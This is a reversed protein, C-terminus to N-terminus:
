TAGETYRRAMDQILEMAWQGYEDNTVHSAVLQCLYLHRLRLTDLNLRLLDASLVEQSAKNRLAELFEGTRILVESPNEKSAV